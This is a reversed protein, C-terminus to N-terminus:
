ASVVGAAAESANHQAAGAKPLHRDIGIHNAMVIAGAHLLQMRCRCRRTSGSCTAPLAPRSRGSCPVAVTCPYVPFSACSAPTSPSPRAQICLRYGLGASPCGIRAHLLPSYAKVHDVLWLCCRVRHLGSRHMNCCASTCRILKRTRSATCWVTGLAGLREDDTKTNYLHLTRMALRATPTDRLVRCLEDSWYHVSLQWRRSSGLGGLMRRLMTHACRCRLACRLSLLTLRM